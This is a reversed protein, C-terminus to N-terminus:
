KALPLPHGDVRMNFVFYNPVCFGINRRNLEVIRRSVLAQDQPNRYTGAIELPLQQCLYDDRCFRGPMCIDLMSRPVEATKLCDAVHDTAACRDIHSGGRVACMDVPLNFEETDKHPSALLEDVFAFKGEASDPTCAKRVRGLPVGGKPKGCIAESPLGYHEAPLPSTFHDKFAFFNFPLGDTVTMGNEIKGERCSAGASIGGAFEKKLMCEGFEVPLAANRVNIVCELKADGCPIGRAFDHGEPLCIDGLGGKTAPWFPFMSHLRFRDPEEGRVLKDLYRARRLKEEYFHPSFPVATRNTKTDLEFHRGLMHFGAVGNSQHCGICSMNNMREVMGAPSKVFEASAFPLNQFKDGGGAFLFTFPKNALRARGTTSFSLAKKALMRGATNELQFVGQDIRAFNKPDSLQDTLSQRLSADKQIAVVDPTNELPQEQFGGNPSPEWIRFLYIAQGGFDTKDGSSFRVIQMNLEIQKLRSKAPDLPGAQLARSFEEATAFNGRQL